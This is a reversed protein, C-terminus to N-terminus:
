YDLWIIEDVKWSKDIPNKKLLVKVNSNKKDGIVCFSVEYIGEDLKEGGAMLGFGLVNGINEYRGEKSITKTAVQYASTSKILYNGFTLGFLTLFGGILQFGLFLAVLTKSKRQSKIFFNILLLTLSILLIFPGFFALGYSNGYNYDVLFIALLVLSLGLFLLILAIKKM